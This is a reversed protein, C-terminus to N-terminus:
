HEEQFRPNTPERVAPTYEAYGCACCRYALKEHVVKATKAGQMRETYGCGPCKWVEVLMLTDANSSVHFTYIARDVQSTSDGIAIGPRLDVCCRPCVHTM